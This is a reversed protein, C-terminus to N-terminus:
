VRELASKAEAGTIIQVVENVHVGVSEWSANLAHLAALDSTEIISYGRPQGVAHWEHEVHVSPPAGHGQERHRPISKAPNTATWTVIYRGMGSYEVGSRFCFVTVYGM